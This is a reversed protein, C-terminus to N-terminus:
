QATPADTPEATPEETPAATAEAEAQAALQESVETIFAVLADNDDLAGTYEEGAVLLVPSPGTAGVSDAARQTADQAWPFFDHGTLCDTVTTDTIGTGQVLSVLEDDTLGAADLEPQQTLLAEHVSLVNDPLTDAVCALTNAARLSYDGTTDITAATTPEATQSATPSPTPAAVASGDLVALPHIELTALGQTVWSDLAEGNAAWFAAAEPSQYDLYLTLDVVGSTRDVVTPTPDDGPDLATTRAATVASGDGSLVVGDSLMNQPGIHSARASAQVALVTVAGAAVVTLGAASWGLRRNRRRRAAEREREIRAMERALARRDKKPLKKLDSRRPTTSM